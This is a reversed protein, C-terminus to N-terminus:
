EETKTAEKKAYSKELFVNFFLGSYNYIIRTLVIFDRESIFSIKKHKIQLAKIPTFWVIFLFTSVLSSMFSLKHKLQISPPKILRM